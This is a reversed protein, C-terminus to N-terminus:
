ELSELGKCAESLGCTFPRARPFAKALTPLLKFCLYNETYFIPVLGLVAFQRVWIAGNIM